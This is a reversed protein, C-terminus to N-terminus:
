EIKDSELLYFYLQLHEKMADRFQSGDGKKLINLLEKHTPRKTKQSRKNFEDIKDRYNDRIFAYVPSFLRCLRLITLNGTMEYLKPHFKSEEEPIVRNQELVTERNVINELEQIDDEKMNLLIYDVMGIEITVIIGLIDMLRDHSIIKPDMVKEIGILIDPETLVMGRKTRSEILGLMKLRSLAERLVSRAVGLSEALKAEIPITDGPMLNIERFHDRLKEEVKDVLTVTSSDILLNEKM